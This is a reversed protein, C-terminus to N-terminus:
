KPITASIYIAAIVSFIFALAFYGAIIALSWKLITMPLDRKKTPYKENTRFNFGCNSCFNDEQKIEKNCNPCNM